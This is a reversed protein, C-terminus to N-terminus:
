TEKELLDDITYQRDEIEIDIELLVKQPEPLDDSFIEGKMELLSPQQAYIYFYSKSISFDKPQIKGLQCTLKWAGPMEKVFIDPSAGIHPLQINSFNDKRPMEPLDSKRVITLGDSKGIEFVVKVDKAPFTGLNKIGIKFERMRCIEKVYKAKERYYDRNGFNISLSLPLEKLGLNTNGYIPLNAPIIANTLKAKARKELQENHAGSVLFADLTPSSNQTEVIANGM